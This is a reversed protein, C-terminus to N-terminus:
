MTSSPVMCVCPIVREEGGPPTLGVEFEDPVTGSFQVRVGDFCTAQTCDGHGFISDCGLLLPMSLVVTLGALASLTSVRAVNTKM